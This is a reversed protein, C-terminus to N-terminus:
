MAVGQSRRVSKWGLFSVLRALMALRAKRVYPRMAVRVGVRNARLDGSSVAESGDSAYSGRSGFRDSLM